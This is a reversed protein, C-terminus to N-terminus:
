FRRLQMLKHSPSAFANKKGQPRVELFDVELDLVEVSDIRVSLHTARSVWM